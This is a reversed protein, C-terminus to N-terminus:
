DLTKMQMDSKQRHSRWLWRLGALGLLIASGSVIAWIPLSAVLALCGVVGLWSFLPTTLRQERRLQLASLHTVEYWVLMVMSAIALFQRLDLVWVLAIVVLALTLVANRPVNSGEKVKGLWSPLEKAEGMAYAVRSAALMDGMPESVTVISISTLILWSGWSGMAKAAATYVPVDNQAMTEAGLVGLTTAGVALFVVAALAIGGGIALPITRRPNKIEGAIIATRMFGDWTWFFVAAGAFVGTLGNNGLINSLNAPNVSPATYTVFLTLLTINVTMLAILVKATLNAKLFNLALVLLILASAALPISLTPVIQAAHTAFALAAVGLSFVGKLLYACGAIFGLTQHDFKRAWIFAGGEDPYNVGLQAASIGTMLAIFGGVIMALLIGSGAEATASGLTGFIGTGIMMAATMLTATTRGLTRPLPARSGAKESDAM